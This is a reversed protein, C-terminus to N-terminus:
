SVTWADKAYKDRFVDDRLTIGCGPIDPPRLKGDRFLYASTDFLDSTSPDQEAILLNPVARGVVAQMYLGLFSGWNHPALKLRPNLSLRRALACVRTIGFARIDPQFVDLAQKVILTEFDDIDSASEGDAVLTAFGKERLHGKFMLNRDVQEPFMEEVFLFEDGVADLWREATELDFGDNADAMLKVGKGVLQRVAKVVEIDRVFGAQPDMWKFGRGVKIKFARHGAKLSLAVEHLLRPIGARGEHEPLLDNFYLSGDYVPVWAPGMGGLIRWTPTALAKGVLDYLAHDSRGLPSLVGIRAKWFEDLTHGLLQRAEGPTSSGVGIGELGVDTGIRLVDESTNLGHVDKRANKGELHPRPAVHRFGTVRNITYKKLDDLGPQELGPVQAWLPVLATALLQRRNM